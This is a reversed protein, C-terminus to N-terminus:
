FKCSRTMAAPLFQPLLILFPTLLFKVPLPLVSFGLPKEWPNCLCRIYSDRIYAHLLPYGKHLDQFRLICCPPTERCDQSNCKGIERNYEVYRYKSSRSIRSHFFVENTQVPLYKRVQNGSR